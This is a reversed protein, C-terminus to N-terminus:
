ISLRWHVAGGSMLRHNMIRRSPDSSNLKTDTSLPLPSVPEESLVSFIFSQGDAEGRPSDQFGDFNLFIHIRSLFFGLPFSM